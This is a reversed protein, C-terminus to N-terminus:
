LVIIMDRPFWSRSQQIPSLSHLWCLLLLVVSRSSLLRGAPSSELGHLFRVGLSVILVNVLRLM